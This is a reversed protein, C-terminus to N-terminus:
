VFGVHEDHRIDITAQPISAIVPQLVALKGLLRQRGGGLVFVTLGIRFDIAAFLTVPARHTQGDHAGRRRCPLVLDMADHPPQEILVIDVSDVDILNGGGSGHSAHIGRMTMRQSAPVPPIFAVPLHELLDTVVHLGILHQRGLTVGLRKHLPEIAIQGPVPLEITLYRRKRGNVASRNLHESTGITATGSPIQRQTHLRSLLKYEAFLNAPEVGIDDVLLLICREQPLHHSQSPLQSAIEMGALHKTRGFQLTVNWTHSRVPLPLVLPPDFRIAHQSTGPSQWSLFRHYHDQCVDGVLRNHRTPREVGGFTPQLRILQVNALDGAFSRLCWVGTRRRELFLNFQGRARNQGPLDCRSRQPFKTETAARACLDPSTPLM